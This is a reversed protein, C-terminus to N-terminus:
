QRLQRPHPLRRQARGEPLCRRAVTGEGDAHEFRFVREPERVALQRPIRVQRRRSSRVIGSPLGKRADHTKTGVLLCEDNPASQLVGVIGTCVWRWERSARPRDLDRRVIPTSCRSTPWVHRAVSAPHHSFNLLSMSNRSQEAHTLHSVGYLGHHKIDHRDHFEYSYDEEVQPASAGLYGRATM